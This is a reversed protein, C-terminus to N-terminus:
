RAPPRPSCRTSPSSASHAPRHAGFTSGPNFGMWGFTLVLTGIVVYGLNHGPFAESRGTRETSASAPGSCCRWRSPPGAAPRTSSVPGPSTSRATASTRAVHRAALALRWGVGLQRLHPLRDGGDRDRRLPLRRLQDARRDRRHHHVRGDGHVRGPVPLVGARRRRLQERVAPLVRAARHRGASGHGFISTLRRRAAWTPSRHLGASSFRSARRRLVGDVRGRVVRPEDDDHARRKEGPHARHRPVRVGGAHVAGPLRHDAALHLQDLDRPSGVHNALSQMGAASLPVKTIGLPNNTAAKTANLVTGNGQGAPGGPDAHHNFQGVAILAILTLTTLLFFKKGRSM